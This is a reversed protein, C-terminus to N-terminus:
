RVYSKPTGKPTGSAQSDTEQGILTALTPTLRGLPVKGHLQAWGTGAGSTSATYGVNYVRRSLCRVHKSLRLSFSLVLCLPLSICVHPPRSLSVCLNLPLSVFASACLCLPLPPESPSLRLLRAM